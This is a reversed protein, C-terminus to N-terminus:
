IENAKHFLTVIVVQPRAFVRPFYEGVGHSVFVPVGDRSEAWGSRFRQGYRTFYTNFTMYPAWIGFFTIQGGHSHGSLILDVGITSQRMSIDPNHSILLVFDDREAGEIARPINPNARWLDRIGALFFNDRIYVGSNSLLTVGHYEMVQFLRTFRDHNGEVGFIGDTTNVKSMFKLTREHYNGRTSMIDGGLILLDIQSENLRAVIDELRAESINHTDSVFAVRYGSINEPFNPSYFSIEVYQIIRDLTLAHIIHVAIISTSIITVIKFAKLLRKFLKKFKKDNFLIM